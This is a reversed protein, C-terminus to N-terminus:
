TAGSVGEDLRWIYPCVGNGAENEVARGGARTSTGLEGEVKLRLVSAGSRYLLPISQTRDMGESVSAVQAGLSGACHPRTARFPPGGATQDPPAMETKTAMDPESLSQAVSRGALAPRHPPGQLSRVILWTKTSLHRPTQDAPHILLTSGPRHACSSNPCARSPCASRTRASTRVAVPHALRGPPL